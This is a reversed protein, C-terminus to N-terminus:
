KCANVHADIWKPLGGGTEQLAWDGLGDAESVNAAAELHLIAM